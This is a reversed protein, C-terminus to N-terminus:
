GFAGERKTAVLEKTARSVQDLHYMIEPMAPNKFHAYSGDINKVVGSMTYSLGDSVDTVNKALDCFNLVEAISPSIQAFEAIDSEPIEDAGIKNIMQIVGKLKGKSDILPCVMLSEFDLLQLHNDVEFSYRVDDEGELSVHPKGSAIAAGTLGMTPPFFMLHEDTIVTKKYDACRISYLNCAKEDYFLV